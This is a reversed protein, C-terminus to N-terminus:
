AARAIATSAGARPTAHHDIGQCGDRTPLDIHPDERDADRGRDVQSHNLGAITGASRLDDQHIDEPDGPRDAHEVDNQM